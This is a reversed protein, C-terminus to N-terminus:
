NYTKEAVGYVIKRYYWHGGSNGKDLWDLNIISPAGLDTARNYANDRYTEMENKTVCISNSPFVDFSGNNFPQHSNSPANTGGFLDSDDHSGSQEKYTNVSYFWLFEGNPNAVSNQYKNLAIMETYDFGTLTSNSSCDSPKGSLRYAGSTNLKGTPKASYSLVKLTYTTSQVDSVFVDTVVYNWNNPITLNNEMDEYLTEVGAASVDGNTVELEVTTSDVSLEDYGFIQRRNDYNIAAETTWIAKEISMTSLNSSEYDSLFEVAAAEPDSPAEYDEYQELNIGSAKIGLDQDQQTMTQNEEKSCSWIMTSGAVFILIKKFM